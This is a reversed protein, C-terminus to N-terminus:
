TCFHRFGGRCAVSVQMCQAREGMAAVGIIIM